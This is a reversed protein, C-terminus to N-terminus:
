LRPPAWIILTLNSPLPFFGKKFCFFFFLFLSLFIPPPSPSRYAGSIRQTHPKPHPPPQSTHATAFVVRALFIPVAVRWRACARSRDLMCAGTTSTRAQKLKKPWPLIQVNKVNKHSRIPSRVESNIEHRMHRKPEEQRDHDFVGM